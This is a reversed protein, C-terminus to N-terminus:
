PSIESIVVQAALKVAFALYALDVTDTTDTALHRHPSTDNGVFEETLGIAAFGLDRFAEHDTGETPVKTVPVGVTGAASTWEANLAATGAELEFRRDGDDDWAVQDITHVAEITDPDISMAYARAGFLGLEEQDFFAITVPATRCSVAALLKAVGLVAVTGSANDNAGPSGSVTDFHAGVIIGKGDGMTGLITAPLTAVVNAGNNYQHLQATYGLTALETMLFTRADDRQQDLARPAPLDTLWGSLAPTSSDLSPLECGAPVDPTAGDAPVDMPPSGCGIAFAVWALKM